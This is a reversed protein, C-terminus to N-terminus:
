NAITSECLEDVSKGYKSRLDLTCNVTAMCTQVMGAVSLCKGLIPLQKAETYVGSYVEVGWSTSPRM